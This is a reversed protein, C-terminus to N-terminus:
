SRRLGPGLACWNSANRCSEEEADLSRVSNLLSLISVYVADSMLFAVGEDTQMFAIVLREGLKNFRLYFASM